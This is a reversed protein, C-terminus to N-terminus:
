LWGGAIYGTTTLEKLIATTKNRSIGFREQIDAPSADLDPARSLLWGLVAIARLSLREDDFAKNDTAVGDASPTYILFKIRNPKIKEFQEISEPM